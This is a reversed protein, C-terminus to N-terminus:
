KKLFDSLIKLLTLFNLRIFIDINKLVIKIGLHYVCWKMFFTNPSTIKGMDRDQQSIRNFINTSSIGEEFFKLLIENLVNIDGYKM